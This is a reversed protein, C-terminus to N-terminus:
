EEIIKVVRFIKDVGLRNNEADEKSRYTKQLRYLRIWNEVPQITCYYEMIHIYTYDYHYDDNEWYKVIIRDEDMTVFTDIRGKIKHDELEPSDWKAPEGMKFRQMDFKDRM